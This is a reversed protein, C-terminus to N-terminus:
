KKKKKNKKTKNINVIRAQQMIVENVSCSSVVIQQQYDGVIVVIYM